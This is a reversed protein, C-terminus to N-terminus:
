SWCRVLESTTSFLTVLSAEHNLEGDFLPLRFGCVM